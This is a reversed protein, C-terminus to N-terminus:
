RGGWKSEVSIPNGLRDFNFTKPHRGYIRSYPVVDHIQVNMDFQVKSSTRTPSLEAIIIKLEEAVDVDIKDPDGGGDPLKLGPTVVSKSKPDEDLHFAKILMEAHRPDAEYLLGDETVRVIRNLVRMEKCDNPGTGLRGKLKCDFSAKMGAEYKDLGESTGLATFDDGHVVVSVGWERHEFCCPSAVGQTFGLDVLCTAYCAEWIAGADRTGYMCRVLRGVVRKSLGLEPPFRVYLSRSPVGYFYGKKVDM